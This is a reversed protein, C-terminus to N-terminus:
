DGAKARDPLLVQLIIAGSAIVGEASTLLGTVAEKLTAPDADVNFFYTLISALSIGGWTSGEAGRKLAFGLLKRLM